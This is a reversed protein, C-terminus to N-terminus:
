FSAIDSFVVEFTISNNANAAAPNQVAGAGDLVLIQFSVPTSTGVNSVPGLSPARENGPAASFQISVHGGIFRKYTDQLTVTYLGQSTWVISAVYLNDTAVFTPQNGADPFFRGMIRREFPVNSKTDYFTRDAV